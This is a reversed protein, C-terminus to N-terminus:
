EYLLKKLKEVIKFLKKVEDKTFDRLFYRATIYSDILLSIGESNEKLFNEIENKKFKRSLILLLERIDHTKPFDGFIELLKAKILFQAVQELHFAAVDYRKKKYDIKADEYFIKARELFKKSLSKRM